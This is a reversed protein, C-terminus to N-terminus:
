KIRLYIKELTYPKMTRHDCFTEFDSIQQRFCKVVSYITKINIKFLKTVRALTMVKRSFNTDLGYILVLILRQVNEPM